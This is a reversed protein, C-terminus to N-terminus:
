QEEQTSISFIDTETYTILPTEVLPGFLNIRATFSYDWMLLRPSIDLAGEYDNVQSVSNLVFPINMREGQYGLVEQKIAVTFDPTFFPLIQEALQLGDDMYRVYATLTFNVNYPVETYNRNYITEGNQQTEAIKYNISPKKRSADYAIETIEFGMKPLITQLVVSNENERNLTDKYRQIFKEKGSYIIPVKIKIPNNDQTRVIYLSDFLSGFAIVTKRLTSHYFPDGFM